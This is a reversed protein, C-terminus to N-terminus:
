VNEEEFDEKNLGACEFMDNERKDLEGYFGWCSNLGKEEWETEEYEEDEGNGSLCKRTTKYKVADEVVFGYVDNDGWAKLEDLLFEIEDLSKEKWYEEKCGSYKLFEDKELWAIGESDTSFEHYFSLDGYYGFGYSMIKVKDTFLNLKCITDIQEDSLYDTLDYMGLNDIKCCFGVEEEWHAEYVNGAYDKWSPQWSQLIWERRSKNYVLSNEYKDHEDSNANAKLIGFISDRHGYLGILIRLRDSCSHKKYEREHKDMISYNRDWDECHLPEDTTDRPNEAYDERYFSIRQSGDKKVMRKVLDDAM